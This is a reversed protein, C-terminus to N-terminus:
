QLFRRELSGIALFDQAACISASHVLAKVRLPVRSSADLRLASWGLLHCASEIGLLGAAGPLQGGTM